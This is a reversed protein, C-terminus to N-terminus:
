SLKELSGRTNRTHVQEQTKERSPLLAGAWVRVHAEFHRNRGAEWTGRCSGYHSDTVRSIDGTGVGQLIQSPEQARLREPLLLAWSFTRAVDQQAGPLPCRQPTQGHAAGARPPQAAKRCLCSTGSSAAQLPAVGCPHPVSPDNGGRHGQKAEHPLRGPQRATTAHTRAARCTARSDCGRETHTKDPHLPRIM